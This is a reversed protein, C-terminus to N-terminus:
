MAGFIESSDPRLCHRSLGVWGGVLLLLWSVLGWSEECHCAGLLCVARLLVPPM